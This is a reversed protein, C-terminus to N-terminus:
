FLIIAGVIAGIALWFDTIAREPLKEWNQIGQNIEDYGKVIAQETEQGLEDVAKQIKQAEDLTMQGAREFGAETSATLQQFQAGEATALKDFQALVDKYQETTINGVDTIQKGLKSTISNLDTAVTHEFGKLADAMEQVAQQISM